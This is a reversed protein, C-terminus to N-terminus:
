PTEEPTLLARIAGDVRSRASRLDSEGDERCSNIAAVGVKAAAELAVRLAAGLEDKTILAMDPYEPPSTRDTKEVLEIWADELLKQAATM